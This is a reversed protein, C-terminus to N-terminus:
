NMHKELLEYPMNTSTRRAAQLYAVQKGKSQLLKVQLAMFVSLTHEYLSSRNVQHNLILTQWDSRGYNRLVMVRRYGCKTTVTKSPCIVYLFQLRIYLKEHLIYIYINTHIHKYRPFIDWDFLHDVLFCRLMIMTSGTHKVNKTSINAFQIELWIWNEPRLVSLFYIM